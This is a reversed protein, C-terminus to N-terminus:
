SEFADALASDFGIREGDTDFVGYELVCTLKTELESNRVRYCVTAEDDSVDDIRAEITLREGFGTPAAFQVDWSTPLLANTASAPTSPRPASARTGAPHELSLYDDLAFALMRAYEEYYVYGAAELHARRVTVEYTFTPEDITSHGQLEDRSRIAKEMPDILREDLADCVHDPLTIAGGEPAIVVHTTSVTGYRGDDSARRYRNEMRFSRERREVPSSSIRVTEGYQPYRAMEGTTAVAAFPIYGEASLSVTSYDIAASLSEMARVNLDFLTAADVFPGCGVDGFRIPAVYQFASM